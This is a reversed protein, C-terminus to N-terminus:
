RSVEAPVAARRATIYDRWAATLEAYERAEQAAMADWDDEFFRGDARQFGLLITRDWNLSDPRDDWSGFEQGLVCRCEDGLDLTELDIRDVWGRRNADLWAAGAEVREEITTM